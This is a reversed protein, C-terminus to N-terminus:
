PVLPSYPGDNLNLNAVVVDVLREARQLLLHLTLAEVALHAHTPVVLLRGLTAGALLGLGDAPVALQHALPGFAVLDLSARAARISPPGTRYGAQYAAM